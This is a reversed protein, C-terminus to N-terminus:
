ENSAPLNSSVQANGKQTIGPPETGPMQSAGGQRWIHDTARLRASPLLEGLTRLHLCAKSVGLVRRVGILSLSYFGASTTGNAPNPLQPLFSDLGSGNTGKGWKSSSSAAGALVSGSVWTM